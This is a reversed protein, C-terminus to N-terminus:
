RTLAKRIAERLRMSSSATTWCYSSHASVFAEWVEATPIYGPACESYGGVLVMENSRIRQAYLQYGVFAEAPLLMCQVPGLDLVPIHIPQGIAVRGHWSLGLAAQLRNGKSLSDNQLRKQMAERAFPGQTRPELHLPECRFDVHELPIRETSTWAESMGSQLRDAFIQRSEHPRAPDNYKGGTVDGSCGTLYIQFVEPNQQQHRRRALGVFDASVGGRGYYSMPHTAYSSVAALPQSENWFSLTRLWPDITGEPANRIAKDATTSGRGFTVEGDPLVVRRNSAIRDVRAKGLGIHTVPRQADLSQALSESVRRLAQQFFTREFMAWSEGEEELMRQAEIDAYPADHQHVCHLLIRERTTGARNALVDRWRDYAGNRLECWDLALLVIPKENRGCLM